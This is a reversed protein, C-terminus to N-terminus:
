AASLPESFKHISFLEDSSEEMYQTSRTYHGTQGCYWGPFLHVDENGSRYKWTPSLTKFYLKTGDPNESPQPDFRLSSTAGCCCTLIQSQPKGEPRDERAKMAARIAAYDRRVSIAYGPLIDEAREEEYLTWADRVSAAPRVYFCENKDSNKISAYYGLTGHIITCANPYDPPVIIYMGTHAEQYDPFPRADEHKEEPLIKAVTAITMKAPPPFFPYPSTALIKHIYQPTTM